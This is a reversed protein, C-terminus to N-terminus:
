GRRSYLLEIGESLPDRDRPDEALTEGAPADGEGREIAKEVKKAMQEYRRAEAGLREKISPTTADALLRRARKAAAHFYTASQQEM